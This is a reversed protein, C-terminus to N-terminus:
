VDIANNAVFAWYVGRPDMWFSGCNRCSPWIPAVRTKSEKRVSASVLHGSQPTDQARL